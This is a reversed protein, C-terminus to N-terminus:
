PTPASEEVVAEHVEPAVAARTMDPVDEAVTATATAAGLLSAVQATRSPPLAVAAPRSPDNGLAVNDASEAKEVRIALQPDIPVVRKAFADRVCTKLCQEEFWKEWVKQTDACQRNKDIKAASVFHYEVHGDDYQVELYGGKLGCEVKTRKAVDPHTFVRDPNFPDYKHRVSGGETVEFEDTVHVLVPKVRKVNEQREMLYAYGRWEPQVTIVGNRPILAVHRHAKGPMLGMQSTELFAKMMAEPGCRALDPDQAAIYCQARFTNIDMYGALAAAISAAMRHNEMWGAVVQASTKPKEVAMATGNNQDKTTM